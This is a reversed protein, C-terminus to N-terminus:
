RHGMIIKPNATEIKKIIKTEFAYSPTPSYVFIAMELKPEDSLNKFCQISTLLM